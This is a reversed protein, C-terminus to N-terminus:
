TKFKGIDLAPLDYKVSPYVIESLFINNYFTKLKSMVSKWFHKDFKVYEVHIDSKTCLVFYCNHINLVAMQGQVQTFYANRRNLTVVNNEDIKLCSLKGAADEISLKWTSPPNKLEVIYKQDNITAIRDVSAGLYPHDIDIIFGKKELQISFSTSTNRNTMDQVFRQASTDEQELGFQMAYTPKCKNYLLSSLLKTAETSDRRFAIRHFNSATLRYVRAAHWDASKSQEKSKQEIIEAEEKTLTLTKTFAEGREKIEQISLPYVSKLVLQKDCNAQHCEIPSNYKVFGCNPNVEMLTKFLKKVSTENRTRDTAHRPDFNLKEFTVKQEPTKGYEKCDQHQTDIAAGSEKKAPKNWSCLKDTVTKAVPLDKFGNSIFDELAFLLAAIHSCAEGKGAVCSCAGGSIGGDNMRFCVYTKYIRQAMSAMVDAKVIYYETESGDSQLRTKLLKQVYGEEFFKYAKLSKYARLSEKDFTKSTSECLYVKLKAHDFDPIDNLNKEWTCQLSEFWTRSFRNSM